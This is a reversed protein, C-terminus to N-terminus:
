LLTGKQRLRNRRHHQRPIGPKGFSLYRQRMPIGTLNLENVLVFLRKPRRTGSLEYFTVNM